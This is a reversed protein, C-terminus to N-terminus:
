SNPTPNSNPANDADRLRVCCSDPEPQLIAATTDAAGLGHLYGDLFRQNISCVLDPAQAALPHFPCNRLLLLAPTAREPEFGLDDLAEAALTLARETGLRGPRRLDRQAEGLETGRAEALRLRRDGSGPSM